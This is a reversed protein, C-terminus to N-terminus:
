YFDDLVDKTVAFIKLSAVDVLNKNHDKFIEVNVKLYIEFIVVISVKVNFNANDLDKFVLIKGVIVNVMNQVINEVKEVKFSIKIAEKFTINAM